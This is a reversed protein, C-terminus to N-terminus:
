RWCAKCQGGGQQCLCLEDLSEGRRCVRRGGAVTGQHCVVIWVVAIDPHCPYAADYLSHPLCAMKGGLATGQCNDALSGVPDVSPLFSCIVDLLPLAIKGATMVGPSNDVLPAVPLSISPGTGVLGANRRSPCTETGDVTSDPHGSPDSMQGAGSVAPGTNGPHSSVCVLNSHRDVPSHLRDNDHFLGAASACLNTRNINNIVLVVM